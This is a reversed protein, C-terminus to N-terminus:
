RLRAALDGSRRMLQYRVFASLFMMARDASLFTPVGGGEMIQGFRNYNTDAGSEVAISMVVPKGHSKVTAVVRAAVNGRYDSIEDDTTHLLQAQPVISICLADVTPCSLVTDISCAFQDDSVMPTLDLMPGVSVFDPLRRRLEEETRRDLPAPELDGISDAAATKEYGANTVVAVRRGGVQSGALVAFTKVYGMHDLMTDAVIMGAQKMAARAVDYEGSISATHSAAARIGEATRGAKYVVIPTDVQASLEFFRRGAGPKFGEIYFAIVDVDPDAGFYALLDCPDVDVQNGYSVIAHPSVANRLNYIEVIGVAGSQSIVAVNELERRPIRFKDDSIFFTNVGLEDESGPHVVGLCNPGMMRMGAARAADLM